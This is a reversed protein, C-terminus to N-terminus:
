VINTWIEEGWEKDRFVEQYPRKRGAAADGRGADLLRYLELRKNRMDYSDNSMLVMDEHGNRTIFVPENSEQCYDFIENFDSRLDSSTRIRPM